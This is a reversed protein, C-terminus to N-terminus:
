SDYDPDGALEIPKWNIVSEATECAEKFRVSRVAIDEVSSGGGLGMAQSLLVEELDQFLRKTVASSKWSDYDAPSIPNSQRSTQLKQLYDEIM